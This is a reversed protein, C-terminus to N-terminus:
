AVFAFREDDRGVLLDGGPCLDEAVGYGYSGYDVAEDVVSFDDDGFALAVSESAFSHLDRM